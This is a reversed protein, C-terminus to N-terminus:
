QSRGTALPRHSTAPPRHGASLIEPSYASAVLFQSPFHVPSVGGIKKAPTSELPTSSLSEALLSKLPSVLQTNSITVPIAQLQQLYLPQSHFKAPIFRKSDASVSITVLAPDSPSTPHNKSSLLQSRTTQILYPEM